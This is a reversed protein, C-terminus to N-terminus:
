VGEGMLSSKNELEPKGMYGLLLCISPSLTVQQWQIRVYAQMLLMAKTSTMTHQEM